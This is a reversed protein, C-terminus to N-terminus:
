IHDRPISASRTKTRVRTDGEFADINTTLHFHEADATLTSRTVVRVDWDGRRAQWSNEVTNSASLPDGDRISWDIHSTTRIELDQDIM